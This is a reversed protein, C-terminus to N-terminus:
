EKPPTPLPMWHTPNAFRSDGKWKKTHPSFLFANTDVYTTGREMVQAIFFRGNVIIAIQQGRLDEHPLEDKVSIWEM